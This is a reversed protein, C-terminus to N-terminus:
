TKARCYTDLSIQPLPIFPPMIINGSSRKKMEMRWSSDDALLIIVIYSTHDACIRPGTGIYSGWESSIATFMSFNLNFFIGSSSKLNDWQNNVAEFILWSFPLECTFDERSKRGGLGPIQERPAVMDTYNFQMLQPDRFIRLWFQSLRPLDENRPDILNLNCNRDISSIIESFIPTIVEDVKRSLVNRFTGGHHLSKMDMAERIVWHKEEKWVSEREKLM